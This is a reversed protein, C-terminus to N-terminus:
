RRIFDLIEKQTRKPDRVFVLHDGPITKINANMKKALSRSFRAPTLRDKNGALILTPVKIKEVFDKKYYTSTALMASVYTQLPTGMLDHLFFYVYPEKRFKSYDIYPYKKRLSIKKRSVKELIVISREVLNDIIRRATIVDGHLPNILILKKVKKPYLYSFVLSVFGGFCHGVLYVKKIKEKRLILNIDKAFHEISVKQKPKFKDSAGHGRLDLKITTYGKKNFFGEIEKWITQNGGFGHVFFLPIKTRKRKIGYYVRAGDFSRVVRKKM